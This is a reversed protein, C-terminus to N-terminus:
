SFQRENPKAKHTKALRSRMLTFIAIGLVLILSGIYKWPRGPDRNVSFISATPMGPNIEYSSQYLTYGDLQLPENMSITIPEGKGNIRVQSEFSMPTETGPYDRKTFKDLQVQFPLNLTDRGFYISFSRGNLDVTKESGETLWLGEAGGGPPAIRLAAMPLPQRPLVEAAHVEEQLSSQSLIGGISITMGMWPTQVIQGSTAFQSLVKQGDKFLDLRVRDPTSPNFHLEMTHDGMSNPLAGGMPDSDLRANDTSADVNPSSTKASSPDVVYRFKYGFVGEQNLSFDAFRAYAVERVKKGDGEVFIELAPNQGAGGADNLSGKGSGVVAQEYSKKLSIKMGHFTVASKRLEPVSIKSEVEGSDSKLIWLTDLRSDRSKRSSARHSNALTKADKSSGSVDDIILRLKAPGLDLASKDKSHLWESVSFFQSKLIFGVGVGSNPDDSVAYQKSSEVFPMLRDFSLLESVQGTLSSLQERKKESLYRPIYVKQLGPAGQPSFGFILDSLVVTNDQDGETIKLQGDVGWEGTIMAGVLLTLLGIHVIVFGLHHKKYPFRSLTSCFINIWLLALWVQFWISSYVWLRALDSNYRSEIVTGVAVMVILIVILPIALRVSSLFKFVRNKNLRSVFKGM